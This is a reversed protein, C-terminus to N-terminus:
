FDYGKDIGYGGSHGDYQIKPSFGVGLLDGVDEGDEEGALRIPNFEKVVRMCTALSVFLDYPSMDDPQVHKLQELTRYFKCRLGNEKVYKQVVKFMSQISKVDTNAGASTEQLYLAGDRNKLNMDFQLYNEFGKQKFYSVVDRNNKEPFLKVGYYICAKLYDECLEDVTDPRWLYEACLDGTVYDAPDKDPTDVNIDFEAFIHMAGDSMKNKNIVDGTDFKFPDAGAAFLHWNTPEPKNNVPSVRRKNANAGMPMYSIWFRGDEQSTPIFEVDGGFVGNKWHFNGFTIKDAMEPPYGFAFYSLRTDLIGLDFQCFSTASVFMDKVNDPYKRMEKQKDVQTKHKEIRELVRQAGGKEYYKDKKVEKLWKKQEPTPDGVIACGYKDFVENCRSRSFWPYLGSVTEGYENVTLKDKPKKPNRDSLMWKYRFSGGGKKEMEEVTTTSIEKGIIRGDETLTPKVVLWRNWGDTDGKGDEDSIHIHWKYGDAALEGSAKYEFKSFLFDEPNIIADDGASKGRKTRPSFQLGERKPYSSNSYIPKFFFPLNTWPLVMKETFASAADDDSKSQLCGNRMYDSIILKYAKCMAKYTKGERRRSGKIMGYCVDSPVVILDWFIFEWLDTCYHVKDMRFQPLGIDMKWFNLFFWYTPSIYILEGNIFQFEGYTFKQWMQEIFACIEEDVEAAATAEELPLLNLKKIKAPIEVRRFVQQDKPLGYNAIGTVDKPADPLTVEYPYLDDIDKCLTVQQQYTYKFDKKLESM